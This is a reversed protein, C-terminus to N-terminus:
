VEEEVYGKRRKFKNRFIVEIASAISSHLILSRSYFTWGPVVYYWRVM